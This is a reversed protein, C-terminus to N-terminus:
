RYEKPIEVGYVQNLSYWGDREDMGWDTFITMVDNLSFGIAKLLRTFKTIKDEPKTYFRSMEYAKDFSYPENETEINDEINDYIWDLTQYLLGEYDM